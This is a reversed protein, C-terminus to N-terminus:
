LNLPRVCVSYFILPCIYRIDVQIWERSRPRGPGPGVSAATQLFADSDDGSGSDLRETLWQSTEPSTTKTALIVQGQHLQGPRTFQWLQPRLINTPWLWSPSRIHIETFPNQIVHQTQLHSSVDRSFWSHRSSLCLEGYRIVGEGKGDETVQKPWICLKCYDTIVSSHLLIVLSWTFYFPLLSFQSDLSLYLCFSIDTFILM